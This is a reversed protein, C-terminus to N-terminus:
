SLTHRGEIKGGNLVKDPEVDSYTLRTYCGVAGVTENCNGPDLARVHRCTVTSNCMCPLTQDVCCLEIYCVPKVVSGNKNHETM